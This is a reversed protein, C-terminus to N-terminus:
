CVCFENGEPDAMTVHHGEYAAVVTAGAAALRDAEASIRGWADGPAVGASVRLDLHLRNKVVKGEPVRLLSIRPGAGAPDRIWAGDGAEDESVGHHALWAARTAFPPPPPEDEYGLAVKWFAALRPADACDLTLDIRPAV